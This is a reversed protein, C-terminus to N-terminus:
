SVTAKQQMLRRLKLCCVVQMLTLTVTAQFTATTLQSYCDTAASAFHCTAVVQAGSVPTLHVDFAWDDEADAECQTQHRHWCRVRSGDIAWHSPENQHTATSSLWLQCCDALM